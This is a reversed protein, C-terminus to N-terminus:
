ITLENEEKLVISQEILSSLTFAFLGAGVFLFGCFITLFTLFFFCKVFFATSLALFLIGVRKLAKTNRRVFPGTPISNLMFIMEAVVWLCPIAIALLFPVIFARYEPALETTGHVMETYTDIMFPLTIAMFLGFIFVLYLTYRLITSYIPAKM